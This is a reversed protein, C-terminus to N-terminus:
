SRIAKEIIEVLEDDVKSDTQKALTKATWLFLETLAQTTVLKALIGLAMKGLAVQM